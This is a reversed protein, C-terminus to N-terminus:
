TPLLFLGAQRATYQGVLLLIMQRSRNFFYPLHTHSSYKSRVESFTVFIGLDLINDVKRVYTM